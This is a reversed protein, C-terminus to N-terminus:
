RVANDALYNITRNGRVELRLNGEDKLKFIGENLIDDELTLLFDAYEEPDIGLRDLDDSYGIFDIDINFREATLERLTEYGWTM